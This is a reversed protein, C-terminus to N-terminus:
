EGASHLRQFVGFLNKAHAMDFAAGNDRVFYDRLGDPQAKGSLSARGNSRRRSSGPMAWCIKSSLGFCNRTARRLSSRRSWSTSSARPRARLEEIVTRAIARLSVPERRLETRSVRSLDLLADILQGMRLAGESISALYEAARGELKDGLNEMLMESYGSIAQLPSRLDHAVSYSFAELRQNAHRLEETLAAKAEAVAHAARAETAEIESRLLLERTRQQEDELQKRRLESQARETVDRGVVLILLEQEVEVATTSFEMLVVGGNATRIEDPLTRGQGDDCPRGPTVLDKFSRGVLRELPLGILESFRRNAERVFGDATLVCIADNANETLTRYRQESAALSAFASV